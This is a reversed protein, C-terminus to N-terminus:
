FTPSSPQGPQSTIERYLWARAATWARKVTASSVGLVDAAEEVTLGGFFRLEVIRAQQEDLMALRDLAENLALVDIPTESLPAVEDNLTVRVRAGGRKAADRARAREVLIQRMSRAAIAMFHPRNQWRLGKDKFLRLYAEHVLATAQISQGKRERALYRAALMRLERYVAPVMEQLAPDEASPRAADGTPRRGVPKRM